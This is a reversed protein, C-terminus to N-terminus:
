KAEFVMEIANVRCEYACLGCGKCYAYDIVYAGNVDHITNDPCVEECV